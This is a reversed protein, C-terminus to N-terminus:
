EVQLEERIFKEGAWTMKGVTRLPSPRQLWLAATTVGRIFDITLPYFITSGLGVEYFSWYRPTDSVTGNQDRGRSVIERSDRHKVARNLIEEGLPSGFLSLPSAMGLQRYQAVIGQALELSLHHTFSNGGVTTMVPLPSLPFNREIGLFRIQEQIDWPLVKLSATTLPERVETLYDMLTHIVAARADEVSRTASMTVFTDEFLHYEEAWKQVEAVTSFRSLTQWWPELLIEFYSLTSSHYTTRSWTPRNQAGTTIVARLM